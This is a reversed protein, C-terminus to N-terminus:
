MCTCTPYHFKSKEILANFVELGSDIADLQHRPIFDYCLNKLARLNDNGLGDSLQLSSHPLSPPPPFVFSVLFLVLYEIVFTDFPVHFYIYMYICLYMSIFECINCVLLLVENMFTSTESEIVTM